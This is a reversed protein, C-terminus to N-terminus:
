WLDYYSLKYVHVHTACKVYVGFTTEHVLGYKQSRVHM